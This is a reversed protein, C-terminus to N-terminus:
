GVICGDFQLGFQQELVNAFELSNIQSTSENGLRGSYDVSTAPPYLEINIYETAIDTSYHHVTM